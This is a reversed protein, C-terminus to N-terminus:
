AAISGFEKFVPPVFEVSQGAGPTVFDSLTVTLGDASVAIAQRKPSGGISVWDGVRLDQQDLLTGMAAGSLVVDFVGAQATATRGGTYIGATGATVCVRGERGGAAIAAGKYYIRDGPNWTGETPDTATASAAVRSGGIWLQDYLEKGAPIKLPWETLITKNQAIMRGVGNGQVQLPNPGSIGYRNIRANKIFGANTEYRDYHAFGRQVDDPVQAVLVSQYTPDPSGLQVVGGGLALPGVYSWQVTGDAIPNPGTGTPGGAAATIGATVCEYVNGARNRQVGQPIFTNARWNAASLGQIVNNNGYSRSGAIANVAPPRWVVDGTALGSSRFDAYAMAGGAVMANTTAINHGGGSGEQYCGIFSSGGGVSNNFVAGQGGVAYCEVGVFTNGLFSADYILFGPGSFDEDSAPGGNGACYGGIWLGGNTDSGRAYFGHGDCTSLGVNYFQWGNANTWAGPDELDNGVIHAGCGSMGDILVHDLVVGNARIHVGAGAGIYKWRATGDLEDDMSAVQAGNARASGGLDDTIVENDIFDGSVSTLRLTGSAGADTVAIIRGFKGSTIGRVFQGVTFAVTKANFALDKDQGQSIPGSGAAKTTGATTCEYHRYFENPDGFIIAGQRPPPGVKRRIGVTVTEGNRWVDVKHNPNIIEVFSLRALDGASSGLDTSTNYREFKLATISLSSKAGAAPTAAAFGCKSRSGCLVAFDIFERRFWYWV